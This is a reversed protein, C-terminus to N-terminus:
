EENSAEADTAASDSESASDSLKTPYRGAEKLAKTLLFEVQGNMSRLEDASWKRLADLLRPDVRLLFSDRKAM